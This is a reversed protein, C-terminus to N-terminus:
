NAYWEKKEGSLACLIVSSKEESIKPLRSIKAALLMGAKGQKM